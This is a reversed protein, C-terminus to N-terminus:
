KLHESAKLMANIKRTVNKNNRFAPDAGCIVTRLYLDLEKLVNYPIAFDNCAYQLGTTYAQTIGPFEPEYATLILKQMDLRAPLATCGPLMSQVSASQLYNLIDAALAPDCSKGVLVGEWFLWATNKRAMPLNKVYFGQCGCGPKLNIMSSFLLPIPTSKLVNNEVVDLISRQNVGTLGLQKQHLNYELMKLVDKVEPTDLNISMMDDSFLNANYSRFIAELYRYDQPILLMPEKQQQLKQMQLFWMDYFNSLQLLSDVSAASRNILQLDPGATLPMGFLENKRDSAHKIAAPVYDEANFHFDPINAIPRLKSRVTSSKVILKVQNSDAFILDYDEHMLREVQEIRQTYECHLDLNKHAHCFEVLKKEIIQMFLWHQPHTALIRLQQRPPSHQISQTKHCLRTGRHKIREIIGEAALERLVRNLTITSANFMTCLEPLPPLYDGPQLKALLQKELEKRVAIYKFTKSMFFVM